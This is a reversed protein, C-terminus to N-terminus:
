LDLQWGVAAHSTIMLLRITRQAGYVSVVKSRQGDPRGGDIGRRFQFRCLLRLPMTLPYDLGDDLASRSRGADHLMAAAPSRDNTCRSVDETSPQCSVSQLSLTRRATPADQLTNSALLMRHVRM